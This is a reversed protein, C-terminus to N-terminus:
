RKFSGLLVPFVALVLAGTILIFVKGSVLRNFLQSGFSITKPATTFFSLLSDQGSNIHTTPDTSSKLDDEAKQANSFTDKDSQSPKDSANGQLLSIITDLKQIITKDSNYINQLLSIMENYKQLDQSKISILTSNITNLKNSIDNIKNQLVKDNGYSITYNGTPLGTGNLTNGYCRFASFQFITNFHQSFTVRSVTGDEVSSWKHTDFSSFGENWNLGTFVVDCVVYGSNVDYDIDVIFDNKSNDFRISSSKSYKSYILFLFLGYQKTNINYFEVECYSLSDTIEPRSFNSVYNNSSPSTTVAYSSVAFVTCSLFASSLFIIFSKKLKSIYDGGFFILAPRGVRVCSLSTYSSWASWCCLWM